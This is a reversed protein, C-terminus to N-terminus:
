THQEFQAMHRKYKKERWQWVVLSLPIAGVAGWFGSFLIETTQAWSWAIGSMFIPDISRGVMVGLIAPFSTRAIFRLIGKKRELKWSSFEIDPDKM